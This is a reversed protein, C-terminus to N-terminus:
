QPREPSWIINQENRKKKKKLKKKWFSKTKKKKTTDVLLHYPFGWVTLGAANWDNWIFTIIAQVQNYEIASDLFSYIYKFFLLASFPIFLLLFFRFRSILFWHCQFSCGPIYLYYCIPISSLFSDMSDKLLQLLLESLIECVYFFLFFMKFYFCFDWVFPWSYQFFRQLRNQEISSFKVNFTIIYYCSNSICHNTIEKVDQRLIQFQAPFHAPQRQNQSEQFHKAGFRGRIADATFGTSSVFCWNLELQLSRKMESTFSNVQINLQVKEVSVGMFKATVDFVGSELAPSIDFFTSKFHAQPLGEIDMLIGVM